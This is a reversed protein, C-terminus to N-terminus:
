VGRNRVVFKGERGGGSGGPRFRIVSVFVSQVVEYKLRTKDVRKILVPRVPSEHQASKERNMPERILHNFYM